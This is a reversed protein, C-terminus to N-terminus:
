FAFYYYYDHCNLEAEMTSATQHELRSQSFTWGAAGQASLCPDQKLGGQAHEAQPTPAHAELSLPDRTGSGSNKGESHANTPM